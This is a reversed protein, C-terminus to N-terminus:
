SADEISLGPDVSVAPPANGDQKPPLMIAVVGALPAGDAGTVELRARGFYQPQTRELIWAGAHWDGEESAQEIKLLRRSVGQAIAKQILADLRPSTKRWNSLTTASIGVASATLTMPMGRRACRLIRRITLPNFKGPRGAPERVPVGANRSLKMM